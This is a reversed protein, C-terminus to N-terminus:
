SDPFYKKNYRVAEPPTYGNDLMWQTMTRGEKPVSSVITEHTVNALDEERIGFRPDGPFIKEKNKENEKRMRELARIELEDVMSAIIAGSIFDKFHFERQTRKFFADFLFTDKQEENFIDSLMIEIWRDIINERENPNKLEAIPQNKLYIKMIPKAKEKTRPPAIEIEKDLRGRRKVAPDLQDIRNTALIVFVGDIKEVGDMLANFQGVYTATHDRSISIGRVPFISDAEDIFLIAPRNKQANAFADRMAKPTEGVFKNEISPGNILELHWKLETTLARAILTKGCGPPGWLVVGKPEKNGKMAKWAIQDFGLGLINKIQRIEKDLGGIEIFGVERINETTTALKLRELIKVMVNGFFLARDGESLPKEALEKKLSLSLVTAKIATGASDKVMILDSLIGTVTAEQLTIFKETEETPVISVISYDKNVLVFQGPQLEKGLKEEVTGITDSGNIPILWCKLFNVPKKEQELIKKRPDDAKSLEKFMVPFYPPEALAWLKDLTEQMAAIYDDTKDKEEQLRKAIFKLAQIKAYIESFQKKDRFTKEMRLANSLEDIERTIRSLSNINNQTSNEETKM